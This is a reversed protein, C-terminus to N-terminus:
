VSHHVNWGDGNRPISKWRCYCCCVFDMPWLACSCPQGFFPVFNKYALLQM